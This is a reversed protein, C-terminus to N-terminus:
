EDTFYPFCKVNTTFASLYHKAIEQVGFSSRTTKKTGIQCPGPQVSLIENSISRLEEIADEKTSPFSIEKEQELSLQHLAQQLEHPLRFLHYVRGLGIKEDHEKTAALGVAELAANRATRPYNTQMFKLGVSNLINTQWWSFNEKEGLFSVSKRLTFLQDLIKM